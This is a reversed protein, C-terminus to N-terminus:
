KYLYVLERVALTVLIISRVCDTVYTITNVTHGMAMIKKRPKSELSPEGYRGVLQSRLVAWDPEFDYYKTKSVSVVKDIAKDLVLYDQRINEKICILTTKVHFM